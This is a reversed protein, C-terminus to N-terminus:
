PTVEETLEVPEFRGLTAFGGIEEIKGSQPDLFSVLGLPADHTVFFRGGPMSGIAVPPATLEIRGEQRTYLDLRYLYDVGRQLVLLQLNTGDSSFATGLGDGELLFPTTEDTRLDVIEMGPHQDYIADVGTGGGGEARTLAVAMEGTPAISVSTAPNQLRYEVLAHNVLDLRYLDHQNGQGWLVAQDDVLTIHDMGEDLDVADIEFREHDLLEVKPRTGYVLVTQDTAASVAMDQPAGALEILNIAPQELDIAYLDTSSRASILAYRGDPTVDAGVPDVIVDPDLSLPYTVSLAPPDAALDVLAVQNRSLVVAEVAAGQDDNVYLIRDAAFGVPVLTQVDRELDLVVVGTLNLVGDIEVELSFDFFATAFRADQSFAVANYAGPLDEGPSAEGGRVVVLETNVELDRNACEDTTDVRKPADETTCVYRQVFTVLSRGDPAAEIRDLRGPGLDILRAEPPSADTILALQGAQPLPVYLGDETPVAQGPSWLPLNEYRGHGSPLHNWGCGLATLLLPSM